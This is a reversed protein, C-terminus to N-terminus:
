TINKSEDVAENRLIVSRALQLPLRWSRKQQSKGFAINFVALLSVDTAAQRQCHVLFVWLLGTRKHEYFIYYM